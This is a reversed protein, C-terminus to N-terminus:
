LLNNEKFSFVGSKSIILHDIALINLKDLASKIENTTSIDQKSPNPNSTPHNHMLIIASSHLLLAKRVISKVSIKVNDSEGVSILEDEILFFKKDLFLVRFVEYNLDQLVLRSYDLVAKWNDLIPKIKAKNKLTRNLIELVTKIAAIASDGISDVERLLETDANIVSSIDGFKEILKKAIPKTDLRKNTSFLLIELLEYCLQVKKHRCSQERLRLRVAGVTTHIM